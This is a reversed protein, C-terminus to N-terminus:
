GNDGQIKPNNHDKVNIDNPLNNFLIMQKMTLGISEFKEILEPVEKKVEDHFYCWWIHKNKSKYDPDADLESQRFSVIKKSITEWNPIDIYSAYNM